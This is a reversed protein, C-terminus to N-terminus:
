LNKAEHSERAKKHIRKLRQTHQWAKLWNLYCEEVTEGSMWTGDGECEYWSLFKRIRPKVEM